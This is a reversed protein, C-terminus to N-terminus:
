RLAPSTLVNHARLSRALLQLFLLSDTPCSVYKSNSTTHTAGLVGVTLSTAHVKHVYTHTPLSQPFMGTNKLESQTERM